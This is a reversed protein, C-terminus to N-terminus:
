KFLKRIMNRYVVFKFYIHIKMTVPIRMMINFIEFDVENAMSFLYEFFIQDIKRDFHKVKFIIMQGHFMAMFHLPEKDQVVRIITGIGNIKKDLEVAGIAAASQEDQSSHHGLWFYILTYSRQQDSYTYQIVFSDGAFFIGHMSDPYPIMKFQEIRYIEKKGSGDDPMQTAAALQPYSHM